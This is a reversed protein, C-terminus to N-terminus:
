RILMMRSTESWNGSKIQALYIGSAVKEGQDNRGDWRIRQIGPTAPENSFKRVAKGLTNYITIDVPQPNSPIEFAITTEPNFPNPYNGLFRISRESAVQSVTGPTILRYLGHLTGYPIITSENDAFVVTPNPSVTRWRLMAKANSDIATFRLSVVDMYEPSVTKGQGAVFLEINVSVRGPVPETMTMTNYYGGSFNQIQVLTPNSLAETNYTFVLNSTGLRFIENNSKIQIVVGCGADNATEFAMKQFRLDYTPQAILPHSSLFLVVFIGFVVSIWKM